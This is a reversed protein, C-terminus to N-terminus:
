FDGGQPNGLSSQLYVNLILKDIAHFKTRGRKAAGIYIFCVSHIKWSNKSNRKKQRSARLFFFHSNGFEHFICSIIHVWLRVDKIIKKWNSRSLFNRIMPPHRISQILPFIPFSSFQTTCITCKLLSGHLLFVFISIKSSLSRIVEWM